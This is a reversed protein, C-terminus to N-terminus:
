RGGQNIKPAFETLKSKAPDDKTEREVASTAILLLITPCVSPRRLLGDM